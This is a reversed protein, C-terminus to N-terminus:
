ATPRTTSPAAGDGGNTAAPGNTAVRKQGRKPAAADRYAYKSYAGYRSYHGYTYAYGLAKDLSFRNLIAGVVRAGVDDLHALAQEIDGTKSTGASTVLVTADAQTSLLVADTAVLVPPTDVVVIDVTERLAELLERLAPSGLVEAPNEIEARGDDPGVGGEVAVAGAPIVYLGEIGTGFTDDLIRQLDAPSAAPSQLLQYLGTQPPMGFLDHIRPRRLDADILVTTRGGQAFATALNAATTSKGEGAGASTVLLSQVVTDPRSFQIATRLHRYTEAAPSLPAHATVIESAVDHDGLPVTRAGGLVDKVVPDLDPVAELVPVGLAAVHEPKYVRNDLRDWLFAVGLGLGLGMALALGFVKSWGPGAPAWPVPAEKLIRAYGPESAEMVRVQELQQAVQAYTTSAAERDQSARELSIQQSPARGLQGSVQGIRSQLQSITGSLGSLAIREQRAQGQLDTVFSLAETPAAIGGAGMVENVYQAGLRTKEADLADIRNQIARARPEDIAQGQAQRNQFVRLDSVLQAREQDIAALRRDTGSSVRDALKPTIDALQGNITALRNSRMQQDIQAEGLQSQLTSLQQQLAASGLSAGGASEMRGEVKADAANVVGRLRGAQEELFERNATLYTRSAIQTQAVYEEAYANALAAAAEPDSSAANIQIGSQVDRDALSFSVSGPPMQGDAGGLKKAVRERIGRSQNLVFLETQVSRSDRAFLDPAVPSAAGQAGGGVAGEARNLDVMVLASTSYVPRQSLIYAGALLGAALVALVVPWRRRYLLDLVEEVNHNGRPKSSPRATRTPRAPPLATPRM